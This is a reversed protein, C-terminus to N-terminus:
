SKGKSFDYELRKRERYERQKGPNWNSVRTFYGVIRSIYDVVEGGCDPCTTLKGRLCHNNRCISYDPSFTFYALKSRSMKQVLNKLSNPDPTTAGIWFHSIAGGTFYPHFEAEIQVKDFLSIDDKYAVHSSNSYYVEKGGGQVWARKGFRSRDKKALKHSCSEAPTQELTYVVKDRRSFKKISGDMQAVIKLGLELGESSTISKGILNLLCENLGIMGFTLRREKFNYYPVGDDTTMKLWPLVKWRDLSLRIIQNSEKLARRAVEMEEDLASFFKKESKSILAIHPLNLTVVKNSGTGLGGSQWVGGAHECLLRCCMAHVYKEDLYDTTFNLFYPAGTRSTTQMTIDVLEDDWDLDRTIATTIIPFTFPAGSGDGDGMVEMLTKYIMRAEPEFEGYTSEIKRGAFIVPEDKLYPPCKIRMGVNSFASQAGTRNSQNLQFDFGQLVEKVQPYDLKDNRLYPALFWNYYDIAQAGSFFLQSYFIFAMSQYVASIFHKAPASRCHPFKLGDLLFIRADIGSCYPKFPDHLTHIYISGDRHHRAIEKSYLEKLVFEEKAQSAIYLNLLSPSMQTNANERLLWTKKNLVDDILDKTLAM